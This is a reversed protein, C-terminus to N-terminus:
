DALDLYQKVAELREHFTFGVSEGTTGGVMVNKIGWEQYRKAMKELNTFDLEKDKNVPTFAAAMNGRIKM